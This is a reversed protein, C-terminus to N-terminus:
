GNETPTNEVVEIEKLIWAITADRAKSLQKLALLSMKSYDMKKIPTLTSEAAAKERLLGRLVTISKDRKQLIGVLAERDEEEIKRHKIQEEPKRWKEIAERACNEIHNFRVPGLMVGGYWRAVVVAGEVNMDLLVKELKKGAWKEGDDSSGTAYLVQSRFHLTSQSSRKRWAAIRHSASKFEVHAQLEKAPVTPSYFAVFTSSRDEIPNSRFIQVPTSSTPELDPSSPRVRKRSM